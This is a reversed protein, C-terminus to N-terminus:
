FNLPISECLYDYNYEKDNNKKFWYDLYYVCWKNSLKRIDSENLSEFDNFFNLLDGGVIIGVDELDFTLIFDCIPNNTNLSFSNEYKNELIDLFKIDQFKFMDQKLNFSFEKYSNFNDEEIISDLSEKTNYYIKFFLNEGFRLTLNNSYPYAENYLQVDAFEFYLSEPSLELCVWRGCTSIVEEILKLSEQKM